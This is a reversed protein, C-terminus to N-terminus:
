SAIIDSVWDLIKSFFFFFSSALRSYFRLDRVKDSLQSSEAVYGMIPMEDARSVTSLFITDENTTSGIIARVTGSQTPDQICLLIFSIM